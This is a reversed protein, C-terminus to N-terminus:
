IGTYWCKFEDVNFMGGKGKMYEPDPLERHDQVRLEYAYHKLTALPIGLEKALINHDMRYFDEIIRVKQYNSLRLKREKPQTMNKM